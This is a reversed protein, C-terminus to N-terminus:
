KTCLDLIPSATRQAEAELHKIPEASFQSRHCGYAWAGCAVSRVMQWTRTLLLGVVVTENRGESREEEFV